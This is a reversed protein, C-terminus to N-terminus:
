FVPDLAEVLDLDIAGRLILYGQIDFLFKEADTVTNM